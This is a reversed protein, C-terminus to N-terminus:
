RWFHFNDYGIRVAEAPVGLASALTMGGGFLLAGGVPSLFILLFLGVM